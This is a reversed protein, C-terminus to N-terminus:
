LIFGNQILLDLAENRSGALLYIGEPMLRGSRAIVRSTQDLGAADRRVNVVRAIDAGDKIAKTDARSLDTIRGQRFLDVPSEIIRSAEGNTTPVNTCRCKPHRLFGDSWRYFRGALIACRSCCKPGVNRVYGDLKPRATLAVGAAVRGSDAIQTVVMSELLTLSNAQELLGTLSRGDSASRGFATTVVQAEPPADLGQAAIMADLSETSQRAASIMLMVLTATLRDIRGLRWARRAALVGKDTLLAQAAYTDSASSLM